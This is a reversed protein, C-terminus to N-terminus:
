DTADKSEAKCSTEEHARGSKCEDCFTTELWWGDHMILKGCGACPWEKPEPMKPFQPKQGMM